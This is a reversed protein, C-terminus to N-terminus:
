MILPIRGDEAAAVGAHESPNNESTKFLVLRLSRFPSGVENGETSNRCNTEIIMSM